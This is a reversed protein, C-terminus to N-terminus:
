YSYIISKFLVDKIEDNAIENLKILLEAKLKDKGEITRVDTIGKSGLVSNIRDRLFIEKAKLKEQSKANKGEVAIETKLIGGGDLNIVFEALEIVPGIEDVKNVPAASVDKPFFKEMLIMGGVGVGVGLILILLNVLFRKSISIKM